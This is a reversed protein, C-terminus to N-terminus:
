EFPIDFTDWDEMEAIGEMLEANYWFERESLHMEYSRGERILSLNDDSWKAVGLDPMPDAYLPIMDNTDMVTLFWGNSVKEEGFLGSGYIFNCFVLAKVGPKNKGFQRIMQIGVQAGRPGNYISTPTDALTRYWTLYDIFSYVKGEDEPYTYVVAEFDALNKIDRAEILLWGPTAEESDSQFVRLNGDKLFGRGFIPEAGNASTEFIKVKVPTGIEQNSGARDFKIHVTIEDATKLRIGEAYSDEVSWGELSLESTYALNMPDILPPRANCMLDELEDARVRAVGLLMTIVVYIAFTRRSLCRTRFLNYRSMEYVM